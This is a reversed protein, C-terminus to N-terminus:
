GQPMFGEIDMGMGPAQGPQAGPMPPGPTPPQAMQAMKAMLVQLIKWHQNTHRYLAMYDKEPLRAGEETKMFDTHIDLHTEHDDHLIMRVGGEERKKNWTGDRFAQNERDAKESDVIDSRLEREATGLNLARLVRIRDKPALLGKEWLEIYLRSQITSSQNLSVGVELRVDYNSALDAKDFYEVSRARNEGVMKVMRKLGYHQGMLKLRYKAEKTLTRNIRKVMPTLKVNEQELMM